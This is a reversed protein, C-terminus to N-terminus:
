VLNFINSLKNINENALKLNKSSIANLFNNGIDELEKNKNRSYKSNKYEISITDIYLKSSLALSKSLSFDSNIKEVAKLMDLKAKQVIGLNMGEEFKQYDLIDFRRLYLMEELYSNNTNGEFKIINRIGLYYFEAALLDNIAQQNNNNQNKLQADAIKSLVGFYLMRILGKDIYERAIRSNDLSTKSYLKILSIGYDIIDLTKITLNNSKDINQSLESISNTSVQKNSNGYFLLEIEKALDTSYADNENLKLKHNELIRNANGRINYIAIIKLVHELAKSRELSNINNMDRNNLGILGISTILSNTTYTVPFDKFENDARIASLKLGGAEFEKQIYEYDSINNAKLVKQISNLKIEPTIIKAQTVPETFKPKNIVQSTNNSNNVTTVISPIPISSNLSINNVKQLEGVSCSSFNIFLLSTIFLKKYFM